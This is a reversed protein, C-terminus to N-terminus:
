AFLYKKYNELLINELHIWQKIHLYIKYLIYNGNHYIKKNKMQHLQNKIQTHHIYLYSGLEKIEQKKKNQSDKYLNLHIIM